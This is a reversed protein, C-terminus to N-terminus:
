KHFESSPIVITKIEDEKFWFQVEFTIDGDIGGDLRMFNDIQFIFNSAKFFLKRSDFLVLEYTIYKNDNELTDPSHKGLGKIIEESRLLFVDSIEKFHVETFSHLTNNVYVTREISSISTSQGHCNLFSSFLLIILIWRM